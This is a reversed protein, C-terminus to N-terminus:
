HTVHKISIAVSVMKKTRAKGELVKHLVRVEEKFIHTAHVYVHKCM